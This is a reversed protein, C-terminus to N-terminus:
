SNYALKGVRWGSIKPKNKEDCGCGSWTGGTGTSAASAPIYDVNKLSRQWPLGQQLGTSWSSNRGIQPQHDLPNAPNRFWWCYTHKEMPLRDSWVFHRPAIIWPAASERYLQCLKTLKPSGAPYSPPPLEFMKSTWGSGQSLSGMKVFIKWTPQFWWSTM